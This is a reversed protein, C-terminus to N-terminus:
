DLRKEESSKRSEKADFWGSDKITDVIHSVPECISYPDIRAPGGVLIGIVEGNDNIVPGGSNGPSSIASVQICDVWDYVDRDLNVLYGDTISGEFFTKLPTGILWVHDLLKLDDALTSHGKLDPVYCIAVDYDENVYVAEIGYIEGDLTRIVSNPYPV